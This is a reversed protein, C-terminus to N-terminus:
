VIKVRQDKVSTREIQTIGTNKKDWASGAGANVDRHATSIPLTLWLILM